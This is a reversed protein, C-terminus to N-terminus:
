QEKTFPIRDLMYYNFTEDSWLKEFGIARIFRDSRFDNLPCRTTLFGERAILPALFARTADRKVTGPHQIEVHIETGKLAAVCGGCPSRVIEWGNPAAQEIM